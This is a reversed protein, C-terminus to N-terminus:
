QGRCRRQRRGSRRQRRRNRRPARCAMRCRPREGQRACAARARRLAHRAACQRRRVCDLQLLQNGFGIAAIWVAAPRSFILEGILHSECQESVVCRVIGAILALLALVAGVRFVRWALMRWALALRSPRRSNVAAVTAAFYRVAPTEDVIFFTRTDGPFAEGAKLRCLFGGLAHSACPAREHPDLAIVDGEVLLQVPLASWTGGRKCSALVLSPTRQAAPGAAFAAHQKGGRRLAAVHRAARECVFLKQRQQRRASLGAELALVVLLVVVEIWALRRTAAAVVLLALAVLACLGRWGFHAWKRLARSSSFNAEQVASELAAALKVAAENHAFGAPETQQPAHPAPSPTRSIEIEVDINDDDVITNDNALHDRRESLQRVRRRSRENRESDSEFASVTESSELVSAERSSATDFSASLPPDDEDNVESTM